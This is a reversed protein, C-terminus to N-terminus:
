VISYIVHVENGCECVQASRLKLSPGESTTGFGEGEFVSRGSGFIYPSVTIRIEDVVRSRVLSWNLRGGGEAMVKRYGMDWLTEAAENINVLPGMGSVVVRVGMSNLAKVAGERASKSTIVVTKEPSETFLRSGLPSRLLGDVVIRDPNRGQVYKLKLSPNDVMVTEAGVMVADSEARLRHLRILDYECSLKSYGTSSAIRGDVTM